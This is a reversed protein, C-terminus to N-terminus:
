VRAPETVVQGPLTNEPLAPQPQGISPAWQPGTSQGYEQPLARGPWLPAGPGPAALAAVSADVGGAGCPCCLKHPRSAPCLPVAWRACARWLRRGPKEILGEWAGLGRVVLAFGSSHRPPPPQPQRPHAPHIGSQVFATKRFASSFPGQRVCVGLLAGPGDKWSGGLARSLPQAGRASAASVGDAYVTPAGEGM